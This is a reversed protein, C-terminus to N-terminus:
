KNLEEYWNLVHIMEDIESQDESEITLLHELDDFIEFGPAAVFQNIKRLPKVKGVEFSSGGGDVEALYVMNDLDIFYIKKGDKSWKPFIGNASSVQWKVTHTPFTSVYVQFKGSENSTYAIWRGDPSVRCAGENFETDLYISDNFHNPNDVSYIKISLQSSPEFESYVIYKNNLTWDWILFNSDTSDILTPPQTGYTDKIYIGTFDNRSSVFVIQSDNPSWFPFWDSESSFTFRRNISRQLDYIWIDSESTQPDEVEAAVYRNDHSLSFSNFEVMETLTDVDQNEITYKKLYSGNNVEGKRYFLHGNRSVTFVGRSFGKDFSVDEAIPRANGIFEVMDPDFGHSMLINDRMFLLNGNAFDANSKAYFLHTISTDSLSSLCIADKEGGSNSEKRNFFVFHDNDPLFRAYRHTFDGNATDLSTLQAPEGGSASVSYIPGKFDPTFLIIDDKNWDGPRGNAADCITLVPGGTSLIKKLKGDMFFALYEGDHSWIPFTADNTGKLPIAALANLSRVWLKYNNDLSDKAVFAVKDGLPSISVDGGAFNGLESGKDPLITTKLVPKPPQPKTKEAYYLYAFALTSLITLAGIVRALDFKFKRKAAVHAPLGIQSGGQSIWRLEDSLDSVSQWRKRPEKSLCKKVLREFLPPTTPIVASISMPEQGIISAILTANSSGEFARKGTAMEYMIAGFAFVDSRVDAEKGELQEPAMYQMTGLITNAGTLPTTQTIASINQDTQNLQLKALGFDLLKAGEQTLMINGPKLDRHILGQHHAADLGSAIEISIKLVEEYPIPGKTLRESLTEGELFEMVLYDVGNENGIDYLTCIHAHNLSSIAKAEREFRERLEPSGAINSPLVKIAVTRNLRPDNAKYIEGMGGAGAKEIVEYPGLKQGVSLSV